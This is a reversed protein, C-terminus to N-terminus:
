LRAVLAESVAPSQSFVARWVAQMPGVGRLSTKAGGEVALTTTKSSAEYRIFVRSRAKIAGQSCADVFTGATASLGGRELGPRLWSKFSQCPMERYAFVTLQKDVDAAVVGDATKDVPLSRMEHSVVYKIGNEDRVTASGTDFFGGARPELAAAHAGWTSLALAATLITLKKMPDENANL